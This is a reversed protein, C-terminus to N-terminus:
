QVAGGGARVPLRSRPVGTHGWRGRGGESCARGHGRRMRATLRERGEVRRAGDDAPQTRTPRLREAEPQSDPLQPERAAAM